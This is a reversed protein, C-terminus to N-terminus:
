PTAEEQTASRDPAPPRGRRRRVVERVHRCAARVEGVGLVWAATLCVSGAVAGYAVAGALMHWRSTMWGTGTLWWLGRASAYGAGAAVLWRAILAPPYMAAYEKRWLVLPLLYCLEQVAIICPVGFVMGRVGGYHGALFVALASVLQVGGALLYTRHTLGLSIAMKRAIQGLGAAFLTVALCSLLISALRLMDPPFQTSGWLGTLLLRGSVVLSLVVLFAIGLAPALARRALATVQGVGSALAESFRSFFVVSVPRLLIAMVKGYLPQVYRFVEYVGVPLLTLMADRVVQYVQTATVYGVSSFIKRFVSGARFGEDRLILRHRYGMGHLMVGCGLLSVGHSAWLSAVLAWPGMHGVLAVLTSLGALRGLIGMAEPRGFRREANALIGILALMVSVGLLPIIWRFMHAARHQDAASFGPAIIAMLLPAALWMIAGIGVAALLMWNLVVAFARFGAEAGRDAKIRHYIPLLVEGIQGTQTQKLVFMLLHTAAFYVGVARTAGFCRAVVVSMGVALVASLINIFTLLGVSRAASHRITQSTAM